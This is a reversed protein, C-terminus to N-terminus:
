TQAPIPANPASINLKEEVQLLPPGARSKARESVLMALIESTLTLQKRRLLRQCFNGM